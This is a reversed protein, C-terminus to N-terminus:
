SQLYLMRQWSWWLCCIPWQTCICMDDGMPLTVKHCTNKSKNICEMCNAKWRTLCQSDLEKWPDLGSFIGATVLSNISPMFCSIMQYFCKNKGVLTGCLFKFHEIAVAFYCFLFFPMKSCNSRPVQFWCCIMFEKCELKELIAVKYVDTTQSKTNM